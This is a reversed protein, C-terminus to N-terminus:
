GFGNDRCHGIQTRSRTTAHTVQRQFRRSVQLSQQDKNPKISPSVSGIMPTAALLTWPAHLRLTEAHRVLSIRWYRVPARNPRWPDSM